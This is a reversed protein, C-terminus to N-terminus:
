NPRRPVTVIDLRNMDPAVIDLHWRVPEDQDCHGCVFAMSTQDSALAVVREGNATAVVTASNSFTFFVNTILVAESPGAVFEVTSRQTTGILDSAPPYQRLRPVPVGVAPQIVQSPTTLALSGVMYDVSMGIKKAISRSVGVFHAAPAQAKGGLWIGETHGCRLQAEIAYDHLLHVALAGHAVARPVSCLIAGTAGLAHAPLFAVPTGLTAPRKVDFLPLLAFKYEGRELTAAVAYLLTATVVCTATILLIAPAPWRQDLCGRLGLALLGAAFVWLIYTMHFPTEARVLAVSILLTCFTALMLTIPTRRVGNAVSVVLGVVGAAYILAYTASIAWATPGAEFFAGIVTTPGTEFVGQLLSLLVRLSGLNRPDDLYAKAGNWDPFGTGAQSVLYPLFPVFFALVALAYTRVSPAVLRHRYVLVAFLPLGLGFTSPHAHLALSFSLVASILFISRGECAYRMAFWVFSLACTAVLSPHLALIGEFTNWGPLALMLAWLLGTPRDVYRAGILYALPFKLAAILGVFVLAPAVTDFFVFPVAFLYYWLPGLHIAGALIPGQMPWTDFRGINSAIGIDRALDFTVIAFLYTMVYTAGLTFICVAILVRQTNAKMPAVLEFRQPSLPFHGAPDNQLRWTLRPAQANERSITNACDHGHANVQREFDSLGHKLAAAPM